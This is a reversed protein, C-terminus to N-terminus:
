YTPIPNIQINKKNEKKYYRPVVDANKLYTPKNKTTHPTRYTHVCSNYINTQIEQYIENLTQQCLKNYLLKIKMQIEKNHNNRWWEKMKNKATKM